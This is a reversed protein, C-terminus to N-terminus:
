QDLKPDTLQNGMITQHDSVIYFSDIWFTNLSYLTM